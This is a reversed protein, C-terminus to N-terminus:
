TVSDECQSSGQRSSHHARLDNVHTSPGDPIRFISLKKDISELMRITASLLTGRLTKLYKSKDEHSSM